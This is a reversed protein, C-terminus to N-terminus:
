TEINLKWKEMKFKQYHWFYIWKLLTLNLNNLCLLINVSVFKHYRPLEMVVCHNFICIYKCLIGGYTNLPIKSHNKSHDNLMKCLYKGPYTSFLVSCNQHQNSCGPGYYLGGHCGTECFHQPNDSIDSSLTLNVLASFSSKFSFKEIFRDLFLSRWHDTIVEQEWLEEVTYQPM